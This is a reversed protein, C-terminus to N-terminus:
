KAFKVSWDVPAAQGMFSVKLLGNAELDHQVGTANANVSALTMGKPVHIFLAYLAGAVTESTGALTNSAATWAQKRIGFAGTLHRNNGLLQPHDLLAHVELVSTGHVPLETQFSGHSIGALREKWFDFVVYEQSADLGLEKDLFISITRTTADTTWNTAAVVDYRGSPMNVKLDFLQPFNKPDRGRGFLDIPFIPLIPIARKILDVREKELAPMDDGSLWQLGTISLMTAATRAEELNFFQTNRPRKLDVRTGHGRLCICDPDSYWIIHNQYTNNSIVEFNNSMQRWGPGPDRGCGVVDVYGIRGGANDPHNTHWIEPGWVNRMAKMSEASVDFTSKSKDFFQSHYKEWQPVTSGMDFKFYGWGQDKLSKMMPIWYEQMVKPNSLDIVGGGQYDMVVKGNEDRLLFWEPKGDPVCYSYPVSWLGPVFGKSRIYHALWAPGHPFKVPDWDRDWHRHDVPDYGDDLQVHEMGYAKLNEIWDTADVMDKETVDRFFALWHNWGTAVVTPHYRDDLPVYRPNGLVKVYYDPMLAILTTGGALPTVLQM